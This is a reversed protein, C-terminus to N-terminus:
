KAANPGQEIRLDLVVALADLTSAKSDAGEKFRHVVAQDLGALNSIRYVSLPSSKIAERIQDSLSLRQKKM